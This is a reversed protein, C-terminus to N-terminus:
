GILATIWETLITIGERATCIQWMLSIVSLIFAAVAIRFTRKERNLKGIETREAEFTDKQSDFMTYLDDPGPIDYGGSDCQEAVVSFFHYTGPPLDDVWQPKDSRKFSGRRNIRKAIKFAQKKTM